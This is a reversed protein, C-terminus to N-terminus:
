CTASPLDPLSTCRCVIDSTLDRLLADVEAEAKNIAEIPALWKRRTLLDTGSEPLLSPGHAELESSLEHLRARILALVYVREVENQDAAFATPATQM